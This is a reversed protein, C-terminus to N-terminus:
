LGYLTAYESGTYRTEYMFALSTMKAGRAAHNSGVQSIKAGVFANVVTGTFPRKTGIQEYIIFGRGIFAQRSPLRDNWQPTWFANISGSGAHRGQVIEDVGDNGAEEVAVLEFDDNWNIGTTAGIIAQAPDDEDVIVVEIHSGSKKSRYSDDVAFESAYGM